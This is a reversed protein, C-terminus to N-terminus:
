KEGGDLAERAKMKTLARDLIGDDKRGRLDWDLIAEFCTVALEIKQNLREIESLLFDFDRGVSEHYMQRRLILREKIEEITM